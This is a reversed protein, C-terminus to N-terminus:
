AAVILSYMDTYYSKYNRWELLTTINSSFNILIVSELDFAPDKPSQEMVDEYGLALLNFITTNLDSLKKDDMHNYQNRGAYILLGIPVRRVKRGICFKILEKRSQMLPYLAEPLAEPIEQTKSFWQIGMWAIQLLSGYLTALAFSEVSFERQTKLSSQIANRNAVVWNKYDPKQNLTDGADGVYIPPRSNQLIEFYTDVGEFIKVVARETKKLYEEASNIM